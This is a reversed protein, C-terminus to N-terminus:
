SAMLDICILCQMHRIYLKRNAVVPVTWAHNSVIDSIIANSGVKEFRTPNPKICHLNGKIDLCILLSDVYATTGWGIEKTSWMEKGTILEVCKFKGRNQTSQGSYGYLYGNILVPDSHHSAIVKSKWLLQYKDKFLKLAQGGMGYESTHFLIGNDYVPTTANVGYDTEWPINYYEKGTQLDLCSLAKGHYALLRKENEIVVPVIAAYGANGSLSKWIVTGDNKNYAIILASGGAQVFIKDEVIIPSSSFGWGPEEGGEDKVNKKWRLKGDELQWCALDGSRGFTYVKNEDICPTARPGSGHGDEANAAYSSHWILKGTQSNICFILSRFLM